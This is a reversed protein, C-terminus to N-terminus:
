VGLDGTVQGGPTVTLTFTGAGRVANGAAGPLGIQCAQVPFGAYCGYPVGFVTDYLKYNPTASFDFDTAAAALLSRDPFTGPSKKLSATFSVVFSDLNNYAAHFHRYSTNNYANDWYYYSDRFVRAAHTGVHAPVTINPMLTNPSVSGGIANSDTVPVTNVLYDRLDEIRDWVTLASSDLNMTVMSYVADNIIAARVGVGPRSIDKPDWYNQNIAGKATYSAKTLGNLVQDYSYVQGAVTGGPQGYAGGAGAYIRLGRSIFATDGVATMPNPGGIGYGGFSNEVAAYTSGWLTGSMTYLSHNQEGGYTKCQAISNILYSVPTSLVGSIRGIHVLAYDTDTPAHDPMGTYIAKGPFNTRGSLNPCNAIFALRLTEPKYANAIGPAAAGMQPTFSTVADSVAHTVDGLYAKVRSKYAAQTEGSQITPADLPAAGSGPAGPIGHFLTHSVFKCGQSDYWPDDWDQASQGAALRSVRGPQTPDGTNGMYAMVGTVVGFPLNTPETFYYSIPSHYLKTYAHGIGAGGGGGGLIAGSPGVQVELEVDSFVADGGPSGEAAQTGVYKINPNFKIAQAFSGYRDTVFKGTVLSPDPNAARWARKTAALGVSGNDVPLTLAPVNKTPEAPFPDDVKGGAGAGGMVLGNVILKCKCNLPIGEFSIAPPAKVGYTPARGLVTVGAPVTVEIEAGSPPAAKYKAVFADRVSYNNTNPVTLTFATLPVLRWQGDVMVWARLIERFAGSKKVLYRFPKWAGGKLVSISV